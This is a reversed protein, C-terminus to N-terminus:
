SAQWAPMFSRHMCTWPYYSGSVQSMCHCGHYPVELQLDQHRSLNMSTCSVFEGQWVAGDAMCHQHKINAIHELWMQLSGESGLLKGEKAGYTHACPLKHLSSAFWCTSGSNFLGPTSCRGPSQDQLQQEQSGNQVAGCKWKETKVPQRWTEHMALQYFDEHDAIISQQRAVRGSLLGSDPRAHM